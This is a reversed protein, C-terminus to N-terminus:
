TKIIEIMHNWLVFPNVGTFGSEQADNVEILIWEGRETKAIDIAVFNASLKKAVWDTLRLAEKLESEPLSYSKGITWYSGFAMCKQQFYFFRFEYSIPVMEPFSEQDIVQLPVYERVAVKQRSLISDENWVEFLKEYQNINEIICQSKKHRNTQRNGKVFVPFSFNLLLEDLKPLKEYIKTYPTKEKLIPYWHEITSCILHEEESVLLKMGKKGLAVEIGRYDKIPGIRLLVPTEITTYVSRCEFHNRFDFDYSGNGTKNILFAMNAITFFDDSIQRLEM